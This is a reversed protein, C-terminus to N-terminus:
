RYFIVKETKLGDEAILRVFYVGSALNKGDYPIENLGNKAEGDFINEVVRGTVDYLNVTVRRQDPSMFRIKMVGKTPNPYISEFYFPGTYQMETGQQVGDIPNAYEDRVSITKRVLYYDNGVKETWLSFLKRTLRVFAVGQPYSSTNDPTDSINVPNSWIAGNKLSYWIDDESRWVILDDEILYPYAILPYQWEPEVQTVFSISPPNYNGDQWQLTACAVSDHNGWNQFGIYVRGDQTYLSPVGAYDAIVIPNSWDGNADRYIFNIDNDYGCTPYALVLRGGPDYGIAPAFGSSSSVTITRFSSQTTFLSFGVVKLAGDDIFAIFGSDAKIAFSSPQLDAETPVYYPDTFNNYELNM